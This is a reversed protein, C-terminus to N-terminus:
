LRELDDPWREWFADDAIRVADEHSLHRRGSMPWRHRYGQRTSYTVVGFQKALRNVDKAVRERSFQDDLLRAITDSLKIQGYVVAPSWRTSRRLDYNERVHKEIYVLLDAVAHLLERYWEHDEPIAESEPHDPPLVDFLAKTHKRYRRPYFKKGIIPV